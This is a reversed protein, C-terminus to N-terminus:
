WHREPPLTEAFTNKKRPLYVTTTSHQEFWPIDIVCEPTIILQAALHYQRPQPINITQHCENNRDLLFGHFLSSAIPPTLLVIM